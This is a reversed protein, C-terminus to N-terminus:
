RKSPRNSCLGHEECYTRIKMRPNTVMFEAQPADGPQFGKVHLYPGDFVEVWEIYHDSKMPNTVGPIVVKIRDGKREIEPAHVDMSKEVLKEMLQDCCITRQGGDRVIMVLKGCQHCKLVELM